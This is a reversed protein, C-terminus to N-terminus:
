RPADSGPATEYDRVTDPLQDSPVLKSERIPQLPESTFRRDPTAPMTMGGNPKPQGQGRLDPKRPSTPSASGIHDLLMLPPEVPLMGRWRVKKFEADPDKAPIASNVTRADLRGMALLLSARAVYEQYRNSLLGLQSSALEQEANLVEITSRLGFREERQMGTFAIQAAEVQRAGTVVGVRSSALTSWASVVDQLAQRREGDVVAQDADNLNQAQRIRSRIIGSQYLPQTVTLQATVATSYDRRDFPSLQGVKGAQATIVASPRQNGREAAIRARSAEENFRASSLQANEETAIAFAEDITAPLGPLEPLPQLEGPSHGVIQLYQGRSVQLQAEAASLQTEGSALRLDAQAVDTITVDRVKRKARREILQDRLAAVNERAVELRQQDRLVAAYVAIVQRVVEGEARRLTEESAQVNARAEALQGRFRGGSYVQQRLNLSLEGTNKDSELSRLKSYEYLGTANLSLTPGYQGRTQVYNENVSKQRYRQEVLTPNRAYAAEVADMLTEAHVPPSACLLLASGLMLRWARARNQIQRHDTRHKEIIM